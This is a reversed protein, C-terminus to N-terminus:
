SHIPYTTIHPYGHSLVSIVIINLYTLGFLPFYFLSFLSKFFNPSLLFIFNLYSYVFTNTTQLLVCFFIKRFEQQSWKTVDWFWSISVSPIMEENLCTAPPRSKIPEYKSLIPPLFLAEQQHPSKDM